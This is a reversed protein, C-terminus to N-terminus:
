KPVSAHAGLWAVDPNDPSPTGAFNVLTVDRVPPMTRGDHWPQIESHGDAFSLGAARNHYYAPFDLFGYQGPSAG